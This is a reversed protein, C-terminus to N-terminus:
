RTTPSAYCWTRKRTNLFTIEAVVCAYIRPAVWFKRSNARLLM